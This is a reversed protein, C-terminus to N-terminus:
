RIEGKQKLASLEMFYVVGIIAALYNFGRGLAYAYLLLAAMLATFIWIVIAKEKRMLWFCLLSAAGLALNVLVDGLRVPTYGQTIMSWVHILGLLLGFGAGIGFFNALMQFRKTKEKPKKPSTKTKAAMLNPTPPSPPEHADLLLKGNM